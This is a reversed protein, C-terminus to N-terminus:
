AAQHQFARRHATPTIGLTDRFRARLNAGSGPGCRTAIQEVTLDPAELLERARDVRATM